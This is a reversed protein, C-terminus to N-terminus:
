KVFVERVDEFRKKAEKKIKYINLVPTGREGLKTYDDATDEFFPKSSVYGVYGLKKM